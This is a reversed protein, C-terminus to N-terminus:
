MLSGSGKGEIGRLSDYIRFLLMVLECYVRIMLSGLFIAIFGILIMWGGFTMLYISYVFNALIMLWFVVQIVAPTVFRRFSLFENWNMHEEKLAQSGRTAVVV